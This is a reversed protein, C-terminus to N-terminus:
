WLRHIFNQQISLYFFMFFIYSSEFCTINIGCWLYISHFPVNHFNMAVYNTLNDCKHWYYFPKRKGSFLVKCYFYDQICLWICPFFFLHIFSYLSVYFYIFLNTCIHVLSLFFSLSFNHHYFVRLSNLNWHNTNM